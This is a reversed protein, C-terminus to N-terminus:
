IGYGPVVKGCVQQAAQFQPSNPDIGTGALTFGGGSTPDPFRPVGHSRMCASYKLANDLGQRTAPAQKGGGPMLHQCAKDASAPANFDAHNAPTAIFVGSSNPDPWSPAGHSRMCKAFAIAELDVTSRGASASGAASGAAGCATALVAAVAIAIAL